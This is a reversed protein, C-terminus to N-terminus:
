GTRDCHGVKVAVSVEVMNEHEAVEDVRGVVFLEEDM